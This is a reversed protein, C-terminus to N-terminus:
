VSEGCAFALPEFPTSGGRRFNEENQALSAESFDFKLVRQTRKYFIILVAATMNQFERRMKVCSDRLSRSLSLCLAVSVSYLAMVEKEDIRGVHWM